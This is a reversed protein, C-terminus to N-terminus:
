KSFYGGIEYPIVAGPWRATESALGNRSKRTVIDGEMYLGLEEPNVESDNKWAAV